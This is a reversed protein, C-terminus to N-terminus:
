NEKPKLYGRIIDSKIRRYAVDGIAENERPEFFSKSLM